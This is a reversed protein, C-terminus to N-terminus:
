RVALECRVGAELSKRLCYLRSADRHENPTFPFGKALLGLVGHWQM